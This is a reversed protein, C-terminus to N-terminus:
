KPAKHRLLIISSRHAKTQEDRFCSFLVLLYLNRIDLMLEWKRRRLWKFGFHKGWLINGYSTQFHQGCSQVRLRTEKLFTQLIYKLWTDRQFRRPTKEQTLNNSFNHFATKIVRFWKMLLETVDQGFWAQGWHGKLIKGLSFRISSCIERFNEMGAAKFIQKVEEWPKSRVYIARHARSSM